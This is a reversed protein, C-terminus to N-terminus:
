FVTIPRGMLYIIVDKNLRQGPTLGAKRNEERFDPRDAQNQGLM